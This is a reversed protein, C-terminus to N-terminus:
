EGSWNRASISSGDRPPRVGDREYIRRGKWTVGKGTTIRISSDFLMAYLIGLGLPATLAYLISVESRTSVVALVLVQLSWSLVAPVLLGSLETNVGLMIATASVLAILPPLVAGVYMSAVCFLAAPFSFNMGSFWNKTSCEWMEAFTKYMRTRILTPAQESLLGAGSGKIREALRVDEMVENKLIEYGGVRDLVTRRILFFGGIGAARKTNPDDIRYFLTFMLFVWAWTPIMVREWFSHAEFRPLLTLAAANVELIRDLATRLASPEFIMDADTALIWEGRAHNLAQQMAYPKGLWGAPLEEGEIVRLRRDSKALTELIAGTADTSRDNVAIVEFRGYDQALISRICAELVRYQENRAPVLISVLPADSATLRFNPTPLLSRQRSLGHITIILIVLWAFAILWLASMLVTFVVSQLRM